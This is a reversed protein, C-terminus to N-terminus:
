KSDAMACGSAWKSPAMKPEPSPISKGTPLRL